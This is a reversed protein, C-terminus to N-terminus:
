CILITKDKRRIFTMPENNKIRILCQPCHTKGWGMRKTYALFSAKNHFGEGILRSELRNDCSECTLIWHTILM